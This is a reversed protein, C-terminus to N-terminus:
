NSLTAEELEELIRKSVKSIAYEEKIRERGSRVLRERLSHDEALKELADALAQPNKDPVMLGCGNELLEPIGGTETAVVPVGYSMAEILAVPVGEADGDETVISALVLADWTGSGLQQLLTDHSMVGLHRVQKKLGREDISQMIDQRLVGDGALDIHISLGREVLIEAAQLLYSHGKVKKMNAPMILRFSSVDRKVNATKSPLDVGMRIINVKDNSVGTLSIIQEKGRRSIVRVSSASAVKAALINNADIDYRHATLIWPVESVESAVFTMSAVGAAWHAHLVDAGWERALRALWLGKPFIAVNKGKQLWSQAGLLRTLSHVAAKPRRCVEEIAAKIIDPSVVPQRLSHSRAIYRADKHIVQGQPDMPVVLVECGRKVLARIEPIIFAEGKGFPLSHTAYLVKM